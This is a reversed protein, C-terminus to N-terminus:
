NACNLPVFFSSTQLGSNGAEDTVFVSGTREGAGLPGVYVFPSECDQEAVSGDLGCQAQTETADTTEWTFIPRCQEPGSSPIQITLSVFAPPLTDITLKIEDSESSENGARDVCTSRLFHQGDTFPGIEIGDERAVTSDIEVLLTLGEYVRVNTNIECGSYVTATTTNRIDEGVLEFSPISPATFDTTWAESFARQSNGAVDYAVVEFVNDAGEGVSATFVGNNCPTDPLDGVVSACEFTCAEGGECEFEFTPTPDNSPDSPVSTFVVTPPTVDVEWAWVAPSPDSTGGADTAVVEFTHAGEPVDSLVVNSTCATQPAGDFSCLFTCPEDNCSFVFEATTAQTPSTPGALTTEPATLDVRWEHTAATLDRFELADSAVVSFTHDGEALDETTLPSTCDSLPAGDVSCEFTCPQSADECSFEFTASLSSTPSDPVVDLVTQPATTDVRWTFLEPSVDLNGALDRGRVEFSHNGDALGTYAKPSACAEYEAGDLACEYTCGGGSPEADSCTFEFTATTADNVGDPSTLLEVEPAVTDVIFAVTPPNPDPTGAQNAATVVVSHEGEALGELVLPSGCAQPAGGDVACTYTCGEPRSCAFTITATTQNTAVAPRSEIQTVPISGDVTWTQEAASEDTNGAADIARVRFVHEAAEVDTVEFPSECAGYAGDDVACEFTCGNGGPVAESCEFLFTADDEGTTAPPGSILTTDPAVTDVEFTAEIPSPDENGAADIAAASFTHPGDALAPLADCDAEVEDMECRYSCGDDDTCALEFAVTETNTIPEPGSVITTDPPTQDVLFVHEAPTEDVYVDARIGRVRFRHEGESLGSYVAPSTCFGFQGQDLACEFTCEVEDACAFAVEISNENTLTKPEGVIETEPPETSPEPGEPAEAEPNTGAEQCVGEECVEGVNCELTSTCTEEAPCGSATAVLASLALCSVSLSFRSRSTSLCRM